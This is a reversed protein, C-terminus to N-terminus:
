HSLSLSLGATRAIRHMAFLLQVSPSYVHNLSEARSWVSAVIKPFDSGM